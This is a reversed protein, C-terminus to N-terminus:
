LSETLSLFSTTLNRQSGTSSESAPQNTFEIAGGNRSPTVGFRQRLFEVIRTPDTSPFEGSIHIDDLAHDKITLQRRNYRNFEEFVEGLPTADFILKRDTWATAAAVNALEPLSVAIPTITVHQGAILFVERTIQAVRAAGEGTSRMREHALTSSPTSAQPAASNDRQLPPGSGANGPDQPRDTLREGALEGEPARSLGAVKSKPVVAVKGEIVTVITGSPKRYVDFQTGVARVTASASQVIFPRMPNKAVSFLAQGQLLQVRREHETYNVRLRTRSNLQVTSGDELVISRQEGIDTAYINRQTYHWTGFCTGIVFLLSAALAIFKRRRATHASEHEHSVSCAQTKAPDQSPTSAQERQAPGATHCYPLDPTLSVVNSEAHAILAEIDTHTHKLNAADEWFATVQLYAQIHQPSHRLWAIFEERGPTGVEGETFDIFWSSAEELVQTSLPLSRKEM